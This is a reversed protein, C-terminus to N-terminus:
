VYGGCSKKPLSLNCIVFNQRSSTLKWLRNYLESAHELLMNVAPETDTLEENTSELYLDSATKFEDNLAKGLFFSSSGAGHDLPSANGNTVRSDLSSITFVSFSGSIVSILSVGKDACTVVRCAVGADGILEGDDATDDKGCELARVVTKPACSTM